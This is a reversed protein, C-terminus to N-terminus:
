QAHSSSSVRSRKTSARRLHLTSGFAIISVAATWGCICSRDGIAAAATGSSLFLLQLFTPLLAPQAQGEAEAHAAPDNLGAFEKSSGVLVRHQVLAM